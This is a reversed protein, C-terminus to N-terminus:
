CRPAMYVSTADNSASARQEEIERNEDMATNTATDELNLTYAGFLRAQLGDTYEGAELHLGAFSVSHVRSM